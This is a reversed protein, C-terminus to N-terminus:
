PNSAQANQYAQDSTTLMHDIARDCDFANCFLPPLPVFGPDRSSLATVIYVRSAMDAILFVQAGRVVLKIAGRGARQALSGEITKLKNKLAQIRAQRQSESLSETGYIQVGRKDELARLQTQVSEIAVVDKPTVLTNLKWAALGELSFYLLQQGYTDQSAQQYTRDLRRNFREIEQAVYPKQPAPQPYQPSTQAKAINNTFLVIFLYLALIKLLGTM